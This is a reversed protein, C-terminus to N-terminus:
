IKVRHLKIPISLRALYYTGAGKIQGTGLVSRLHRHCKEGSDRVTSQLLSLLLSLNGIQPTGKMLPVELVSM